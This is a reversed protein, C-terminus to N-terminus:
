QVVFTRRAVTPTHLFELGQAVQYAAEVLETHCLAIEPDSLLSRLTGDCEKTMLFVTHYGANSFDLRVAIGIFPVVRPHTNERCMEIENRIAKWAELEDTPTFRKAVVRASSLRPTAGILIHLLVSRHHPIPCLADRPILCLASVPVCRALYVNTNPSIPTRNVKLASFDRMMGGREFTKLINKIAEPAAAM